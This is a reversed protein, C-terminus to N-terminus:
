LWKRSVRGETKCAPPRRRPRLSWLALTGVGLVWAKQSGHTDGGAWERAATRPPTAVGSIGAGLKLERGIWWRPSIPM